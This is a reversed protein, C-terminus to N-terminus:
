AQEGDRIEKAENMQKMKEELALNERFQTRKKNWVQMYREFDSYKLIKTIEKILDKDNGTVKLHDKMLSSDWSREKETYEIYTEYELMIRELVMKDKDTPSDKLLLERYEELPITVYQTKEKAM